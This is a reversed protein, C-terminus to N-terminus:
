RCRHRANGCRQSETAARTTTCKTHWRQFMCLAVKKKLNMMWRQWNPNGLLVCSDTQVHTEKWLYTDRQGRHIEAENYNTFIKWIKRHAQINTWADICTLANADFSNRCLAALL